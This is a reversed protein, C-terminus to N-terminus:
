LSNVVRPWGEFEGMDPPSDMIVVYLRSENGSKAVIGRVYQGRTIKFWHEAGMVDQVAFELAPIRVSTIAYDDKWRGSLVHSYRAWGGIPLQCKEHPRKGWLQLSDEGNNLRVPLRAGTQTFRVEYTHEDFHYRIARCM